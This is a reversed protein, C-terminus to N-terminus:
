QQYVPAQPKFYTQKELSVNVGRIPEMDVDINEECIQRIKDKVLEDDQEYRVM